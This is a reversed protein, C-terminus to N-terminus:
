NGRQKRKQEVNTIEIGIVQLKRDLDILVNDDNGVQITHKIKRRSRLKIYAANAAKDHTVKM